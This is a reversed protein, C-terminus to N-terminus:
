EVDERFRVSITQLLQGEKSCFSAFIMGVTLGTSTRALGVLQARLLIAVDLPIPAFADVHLDQVIFEMGSLDVNDAGIRVGNWLAFLEEGFLGLTRGMAMIGSGSNARSRDITERSQSHFTVEVEFGKYEVVRMGFTAPNILLPGRILHETDGVM